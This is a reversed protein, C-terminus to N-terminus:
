GVLAAPLPETHLIALRDTTRTLAVYLARLGGPVERVIAAPEVVIVSDFELGKSGVADLVAVDADLEDVTTRGAEAGLIRDRLGVLMSPPAVVAVKGGAVATREQEVIEMVRTLPSVRVEVGTSRVARPAAVPAGSAALVRAAVVMLEAPTRYSLTLDAHQRSWHAPLEALADDWTGEASASSGQGLDGVVTLSGGPCRRAVMRWQMPTLDQAEDIIVHGFTRLTPEVVPDPAGKDLRAQAELRAKLDKRGQEDLGVSEKVEWLVEEILGEDGDDLEIRRRARPARQPGLLADAEDLLAVDAISWAGPAGASSALLEVAEEDLLGRCAASLLSPRSYLDGILMEPTLVPWLRAVIARFGDLSPLARRFAALDEELRGEVDDGGGVRLLRADAHRLRECFHDTLLRRLLRAQENHRARHRSVRRVLDRSDEVTLRLRHPGWGLAMEERLPRQRQRVANAVVQALAASGKLQAVVLPDDVSPRLGELMTATTALRVGHEGLSPLVQEIYTLFVPNPGVVLVGQADLPFRYTYLLYAARHLAVVTKGTGPGGQVVLVGRMPARVVADQEAQITAVIEGMRGTRRSGLAAILAGEGVIELGAREAAEEDFLEDDIGTLRSGRAHFHRRRVLGLPERGTSRYFPEAVPARWDVVLPEGDVDSVGARGIYWAEREVSDTRGFILPTRGLRLDKARRGAFEAAATSEFRSQHTGGEEPVAVVAASLGQIEELRGYARDVYAQESALEPHM